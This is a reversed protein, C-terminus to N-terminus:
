RGKVPRGIANYVGEADSNWEYVFLRLRLCHWVGGSRHLDDEAHPAKVCAVPADRHKVKLEAGCKEAM